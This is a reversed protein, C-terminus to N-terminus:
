GTRSPAALRSILLGWLFFGFLGPYPQRFTVKFNNDIVILFAVVVALGLLPLDSPLTRHARWLLAATFGILWLLPLFALLGFNYIFDLYYNHASTAVARDFPQAHGFLAAWPSEMIGRAYRTWDALRARVNLPVPSGAAGVPERIRSVVDQPLGSPPPDFVGSKTHSPEIRHFVGYKAEFAPGERDVYLYAAAAGVSLAVCAHVALTRARVLAFATLGGILLALALLAYSAAAYAGMIPALAIIWLRNRRDEWLALAAFLYAGVFVVPVFQRHQYITFGWVHHRFTELPFSYGLQLPVIASIVGLFAIACARVADGGAGYMQGLCLAIAPVAFQALLLLKRSEVDGAVLTTAVTTLAM